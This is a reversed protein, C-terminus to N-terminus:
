IVILNISIGVPDNANAQGVKSISEISYTYKMFIDLAEKISRAVCSGMVKREHYLGTMVYYSKTM